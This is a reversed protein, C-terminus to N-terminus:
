SRCVQEWARSVDITVKDGGPLTIEQQSANEHPLREGRPLVTIDVVFCDQSGESNAQSDRYTMVFHSPKDHVWDHKLFNQLNYYVAFPAQAEESAESPAAQTSEALAADAWSAPDPGFGSGVRSQTFDAAYDIPAGTGVETWYRNASGPETDWGASNM